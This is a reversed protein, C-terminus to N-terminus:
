VHARGIKALAGVHKALSAAVSPSCHLEGKVCGEIARVLEPVPANRTVYAIAGAQAFSLVEAPTNTVSLTLAIVQVSPGPRSLRRITGVADEIGTDVLILGTGVREILERAEAADDTSGAVTFGPQDRLVLELGDRYLRIDSLIVLNIVEPCRAQELHDARSAHPLTMYVYGIRSRIAGPQSRKPMAPEHVLPPAARDATLRHRSQGPLPVQLVKAVVPLSFRGGGSM